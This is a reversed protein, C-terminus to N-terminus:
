GITTSHAAMIVYEPRTAANAGSLIFKCDGSNGIGRGHFSLSFGSSRGLQTSGSRPCLTQNNNSDSCRQGATKTSYVQDNRICKLLSLLAFFYFSHFSLYGYSNFKDRKDMKEVSQQLRSRPM